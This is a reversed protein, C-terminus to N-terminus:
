IDGKLKVRVEKEGGYDGEVGGLATLSELIRKREMDMGMLEV